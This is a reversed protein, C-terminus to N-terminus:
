KTINSVAEDMGLFASDIKGAFVLHKPNNLDLLEDLIKVIIDKNEKYKEIDMSM